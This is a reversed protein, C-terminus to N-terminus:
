PCAVTPPDERYLGLAELAPRDTVRFLLAPADKAENFHAHRSWAPIVFCDRPGWTLTEGDVETRGTGEMVFHVASASQRRVAGKFGAPLRQIAPELTTMVPGGTQRDRYPVITGEYPSADAGDTGELQAKIDAWAYHLRTPEVDNRVPQRDEGFNEFIVQNLAGVLPGDLVDLWLARAGSQNHHDHWQWNPTLVLDRDQMPCRAGDVVTFLDPHGEIVFRLASITHRHAWALEGPKIMHVGVNMTHTTFRELGPNVFMLSRRATFSQKVAAGSREILAETDRWKWIHPRGRTHPEWVDGQWDGGAGADRREDSLWQGRMHAAALAANFADLTEGKDYAM